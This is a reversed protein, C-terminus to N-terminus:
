RGGWAIVNKALERLYLPAREIQGPAVGPKSAINCTGLQAFVVEGKGYTRVLALSVRAPDMLSVWRPGFPEDGSYFQGTTVSSLVTYALERWDASSNAISPAISCGPEMDYKEGSLGHLLAHDASSFAFESSRRHSTDSVFQLGALVPDASAGAGADWILMRGGRGVWDSLVGAYRKYQPSNLDYVVVMKARRLPDDGFRYSQASWDAEVRFHELLWHFANAANNMPGDLGIYVLDAGRSALADQEHYFSREHQFSNAVTDWRYWAGLDTAQRYTATALKALARYEDLSADLKALM